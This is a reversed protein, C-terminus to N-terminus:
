DVAPSLMEDADEDPERRRSLFFSDRAGAGLLAIVPDDPLVGAHLEGGNGVDGGGVEILELAKEGLLLSFVVPSHRVYHLHMAKAM